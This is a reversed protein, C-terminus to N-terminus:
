MDTGRDIPRPSGSLYLFTAVMATAEIALLWLVPTAHPASSFADVEDEDIQM